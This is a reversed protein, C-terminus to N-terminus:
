LASEGNAARLVCHRQFQARCHAHRPQPTILTYSLLGVIKEGRGIAPERLAEIREVQLLGLGHEILQRSIEIHYSTIPSKLSVGHPPAFEDGQEAADRDCPGNTSM